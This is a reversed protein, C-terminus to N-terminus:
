HRGNASGVLLWSVSHRPFAAKTVEYGKSCIDVCLMNPILGKLLIIPWIFGTFLIMCFQFLLKSKKRKFDPVLCLHLNDSNNKKLIVKNPNSDWLM